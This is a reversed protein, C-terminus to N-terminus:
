GPAGPGGPRRAVLLTIRGSQVVQGRQNLIEREEIVVGGERLSRKAVARARSRITDGVEVGHHFHWEFGMFAMVALPPTPVRWTLGASVCIPLLDPVLPQAGRPPHEAVGAFLTVHATTLTLAPTELIVGIEVDEFYHRPVQGAAGPASPRELV